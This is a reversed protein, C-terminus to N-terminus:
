PCGMPHRIPGYVGPLVELRKFPKFLARDSQRVFGTLILPTSYTTDKTHKFIRFDEDENFTHVTSNYLDFICNPTLLKSPKGLMVHESVEFNAFLAQYFLPFATIAISNVTLDTNIYAVNTEHPQCWYAKLRNSNEMQFMSYNQAAQSLNIYNEGIGQQQTYTNSSIYVMLTQIVTQIQHVNYGKSALNKELIFKSIISQINTYDICLRNQPNQANQANPHPRFPLPAIDFFKNCATTNTSFVVNFKDLQNTFTRQEFPFLDFIDHAHRTCVLNTFNLFSRDCANIGQFMCNNTAKHKYM